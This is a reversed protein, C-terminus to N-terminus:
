RACEGQVSEKCVGRACEGGRGGLGDGNGRPNTCSLLWHSSCFLGGDGYLASRVKCVRRACEGQVSVGGLGWGLGGRGVSNTGGGMPLLAAALPLRVAAAWGWIFSKGGQVSAKCM